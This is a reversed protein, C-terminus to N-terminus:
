TATGAARVKVPATERVVLSLLGAAVACAAMIWMPAGLGLKDASWGAILPGSFGGVIEGSGMSLGVATAIYRAPITESPITAMVLPFNGIMFWGAFLLVGLIVLSGQFYLAALPTLVGLFSFLILVPKRGIRDSWGSNIMSGVTASIGLVGMLWSMTTPSFHRFEVFFVPMFTWAIVTYAVMLICILVCLLINHIKLLEWRSMKEESVEPTDVTKVSHLVPERVYRYILWAALLGPIGVLYFAVRWNFMNALAVVIIPAAFSGLLNSGFNQMMGMYLGRKKEPTELVVLSQSIPLVGGESAGMLMRALLLMHFSAAMGSLFSCFSFVVIAVVLLMKRRGRADAVAGLLIGSIAWCISLGSSLLGIQTNSIHLDKIIFPVLYSLANRDFFTIGFTLSLIVMLRTEYRWATTNM